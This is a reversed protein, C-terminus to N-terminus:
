RLEVKARQDGFQEHIVKEVTSDFIVIEPEQEKNAGYQGLMGGTKQIYTNEYLKPLSEQERAVLHLMRYAAREFVNHHIVFDHATNVYSWGKIHAPTDVNHRQQGWGYGSFRIINGCIEINSMSSENEIEKELFYEIGYVCYEVLNDKYLVNKMEIKTDSTTFQHTM